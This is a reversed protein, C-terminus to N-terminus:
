HLRHSGSTIPAPALHGRVGGAPASCVVDIFGQTSGMSALSLALDRGLGSASTCGGELAGCVEKLEGVCHAFTMESAVRRGSAKLIGDRYDRKILNTQSYM